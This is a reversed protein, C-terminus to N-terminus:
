FAHCFYVRFCIKQFPTKANLLFLQKNVFNSCRIKLSVITCVHVHVHVHEYVYICSTVQPPTTRLVFNTNICAAHGKWGSDENGRTHSWISPTWISDAIHLLATTISNSLDSIYVTAYICTSSSLSIATCNTNRGTTLDLKTFHTYISDSVVVFASRRGMTIILAKGKPSVVGVKYSVGLSMLSGYFTYYTWTSNILTFRSYSPRRVHLPCSVQKLWSRTFIHKSYEFNPTM